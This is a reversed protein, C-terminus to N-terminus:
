RADWQAQVKREAATPILGAPAFRRSPVPPPEATSATGRIARLSMVIGSVVVVIVVSAFIISLSGQIFTNRV